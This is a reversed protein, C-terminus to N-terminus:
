FDFALLAEAIRDISAFLFVGPAYPEISDALLTLAGCWVAFGLLNAALVRANDATTVSRIAINTLGFTLALTIVGVALSLGPVFMLVMFAMPSMALGMVRLLQELYARERFVQTLMVYVILLWVFGWLVMALLSGILASNILIDQQAPYGKLSWWLWGGIGALLMSLAAIAVCPITAAPTSRVDDFVQMDLNLLRQLWVSMSRAEVPM